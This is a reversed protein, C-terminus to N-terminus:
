RQKKAVSPWYGVCGGEIFWPWPCFIDLDRFFWWCATMNFSFIKKLDCCTIFSKSNLKMSDYFIFIQLLMKRNRNIVRGASFHDWVRLSEFNLPGCLSVSWKIRRRSRESASMQSINAVREPHAQWRVHPTWDDATNSKPPTIKYTSM